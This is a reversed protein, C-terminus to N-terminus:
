CWKSLVLDLSYVSMSPSYTKLEEQRVLEVMVGMGRARTLLEDLVRDIDDRECIHYLHITGGFNLKTLADPFFDMASHPLNMVIRDVNPLEFIVEKADGEIAMVKDAKNLEINRRMYSIADANLDVAYIISPNAHRAIMIAFPGVGAFMDLVVEDDHVLSAVRMRENALRPNFYVKSPDVLLKIGYETHVTELVEDGAIVELDRVRLEGKVGKDLAITRLRPFAQKLAGGVEKSYPLLEEPLKMIAVDGIVDFSSPILDRLQEPVHALRAFDAEAVSREKFDEELVEHGLGGVDASLLPFLIHDDVRRVKLSIDLLGSELLIKRVSEGEGKPVKLCLSRVTFPM